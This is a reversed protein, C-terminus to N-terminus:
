MFVYAVDAFTIKDMVTLKHKQSYPLIEGNVFTGNTSNLDEIYYDSGQRMIRAHHRSVAKSHLIAESDKHSGIRFVDSNIMYDDEAGAGDYVLKGACLNGIDKLLVTPTYYEDEPSVEFDFHSEEEEERENRNFILHKKAPKRESKKTSKKENKETNKDKKTKSNKRGFIKAFFGVKQSAEEMEEDFEEYYDDFDIDDEEYIQRVASSKKKYDVGSNNVIDGTSQSASLDVKEVQIVTDKAKRERILGLLESISMDEEMSKDYLDYILETVPDNEPDALTVLLETVSLFQEKFNELSFPCYCLYVLFEQNKKELFISEPSILIHNVSIVYKNIEEFASSIYYFIKELLDMSLVSRELYDKLSEKGTIRYWYQTNSNVQMTYFSLLCEIQNNMLMKEEFVNRCPQGEAVMFSENHNRKFSIEM